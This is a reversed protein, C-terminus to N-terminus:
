PVPEYIIGSAVDFKRYNTCMAAALPCQREVNFTILDHLYRFVRIDM